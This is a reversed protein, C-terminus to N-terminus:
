AASLYPNRKADPLSGDEDLGLDVDACFEDVTFGLASTIEIVTDIRPLKTRGRLIADVQSESTNPLRKAFKPGTIGRRDLESKLKQGFTQKAM